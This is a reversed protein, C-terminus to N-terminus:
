TFPIILGVLILAIGAGINTRRVAVPSQLFKRIQNVFLALILNGILPVVFSLACIIVIDITGVSSIDFFGPLLAIYFLSAKPNATVAVLGAIFGAWMGPRTLASDGKLIKDAYRIVGIGMFILMGGAVFRLITLFGDYAQAVQNLGLIVVLPWLIDGLAVGLALPWAARFGGSVARAIMALWVPGPTIFLILLALAYLALDTPNLSM